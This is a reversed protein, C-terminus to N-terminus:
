PSGYKSTRDADIIRGPRKCGHGQNSTWIGILKSGLKDEDQKPASANPNGHIECLEHWRFPLTGEQVDGLTKAVDGLYLIESDSRERSSINTGDLVHLTPFYAIVRSRAHAETTIPSMRLSLTRIGPLWRSLNELDSWSSLANSALALYKIQFLAAGGGNPPIASFKNSTLIVKELSPFSTDITTALDVWDSLANNDLNLTQLTNHPIPSSGLATFNNFGVELSQLRPMHAIISQIAEWSLRIDNLELETLNPFPSGLFADEDTCISYLSSHSSTSICWNLPFPHSTKGTMSWLSRSISTDSTQTGLNLLGMGYNRLRDLRALKSRIKDLNVAEVEIAGLSSGLIVTEQTESGHLDELYKSQVAELFSTGYKVAPSIRIFSGSRPYRTGISSTQAVPMDLSELRTTFYRKNNKVGDHKGREPDDWDVGIWEGKTGDVSGLYRVTGPQGNYLIRTGPQPRM